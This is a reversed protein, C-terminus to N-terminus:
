DALIEADDEADIIDSEDLLEDLTAQTSDTNDIVVADDEEVVEVDTEDSELGETILCDECPGVQMGQGCHDCKEFPAHDGTVTTTSLNTPLSWDCDTCNRGHDTM